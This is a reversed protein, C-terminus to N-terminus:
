TEKRVMGPLRLCLISVVYIIAASVIFTAGELIGYLVGGLVLGVISAMSAVSSSFGQVSGQYEDGAHTARDHEDVQAM